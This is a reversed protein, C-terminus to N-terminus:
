RFQIIKMIIQLYITMDCLTLTTNTYDIIQLSTNM